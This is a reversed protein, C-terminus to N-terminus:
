RFYNLNSLNGQYKKTRKSKRALNRADTTEITQEVGKVRAFQKANMRHAVRM